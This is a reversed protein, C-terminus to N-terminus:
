NLKLPLERSKWKKGDCVAFIQGKVTKGSFRSPILFEVKHTETREILCPLNITPIHLPKIQEFSEDKEIKLYLKLFQMPKNPTFTIEATLKADRLLYSKEDADISGSLSSEEIKIEFNNEKPKNSHGTLLKIKRLLKKHTDTCIYFLFMGFLLFLWRVYNQDINGMWEGWTKIDDPIGSIGIVCLIIAIGKGLRKLVYM